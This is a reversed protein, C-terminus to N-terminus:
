PIGRIISPGILRTLPVPLRQWIKVRRDYKGSELRMDEVSGERVYYQWVAPEPMSGWKKKFAFTNGEPTCRGFDFVRQGREVTRRILHWHMMDNANTSNHSRLSSASPVETVGPSHVLLAAAIPQGKDRVVCLEADDAFEALISRFLRRGFVPTGLDRMNRAFVAYFEDLLRSGGWHVTFGQKEGKVVKNRTKSKFGARLEDAAGPLALRMHVKSTVQVTLAPHQFEQEHRLELHKVKLEDALEVARDILATGAEEDPAIVGASNVYPLSVLFRGFLLSKVLALPLMGVPQDSRKAVLLYAKHRLGNCLATLWRPDCGRRGVLDFVQQGVQRAGPSATDSCVEVRIPSSELVGAESSDPPVSSERTDQM